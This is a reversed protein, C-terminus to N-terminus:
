GELDPSSKGSFNNSQTKRKANPSSTRSVGGSTVRRAPLGLRAERSIGRKAVLVRSASELVGRRPKVM